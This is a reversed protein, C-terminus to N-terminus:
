ASRRPWQWDEGDDELHQVDDGLAFMGGVLWGLACALLLWAGVGVLLIEM